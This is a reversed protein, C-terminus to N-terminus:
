QNLLEFINKFAFVSSITENNSNPTGKYQTIINSLNYKHMEYIINSVMAYTSGEDHKNWNNNCLKERVYKKLNSEDDGKILENKDIIFDNLLKIIITVIEKRTWEM